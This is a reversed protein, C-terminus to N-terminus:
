NGQPPLRSKIFAEVEDLEELCANHEMGSYTKLTVDYGMAKLLRESGQALPYRIMQDTQHLLLWSSMGVIGAIKFPATLGAFISMAGGQSFGGLLVRETPIGAAVEAQILSHLYKRSELIGDKDENLKSEISTIAAGLSTVDFWGPMPYGNNITIPIVPANPLIFKVESLQPKHRWREVADAWGAGSDGLGHTFIVTATHRGKAPFILPAARRVSSMISTTTSSQEPSSSADQAVPKQPTASFDLLQPFFLTLLFAAAPLFLSIAFVHRVNLMLTLSVRRRRRATKRAVAAEPQVTIVVIPKDSVTVREVKKVVFRTGPAFTYEIKKSDDSLPTIYAAADWVWSEEGPEAVLVIGNSYHMADELSDTFSWVMKTTVTRGVAAYSALADDFPTVLERGLPGANLPCELFEIGFHALGLQYIDLQGSYLRPKALVATRPVARFAAGLLRNQVESFRHLEASVNALQAKVSALSDAPTMLFSRMYSANHPTYYSWNTAWIQEAISESDLPYPPPDIGTYQFIKMFVLRIFSATTWDYVSMALEFSHRTFPFLRRGIARIEEVTKGPADPINNYPVYKHEIMHRIYAADHESVQPLPKLKGSAPTTTYCDSVADPLAYFGLDFAGDDTVRLTLNLLPVAVDLGPCSSPARAWRRLSLLAGNADIALDSSGSRFETLDLFGTHEVIARSSVNQGGRIKKIPDGDSFWLQMHCLVRVLQWM